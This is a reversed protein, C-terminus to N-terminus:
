LFTKNKGATKVTRGLFRRFFAYMQLIYENQFRKPCGSIRRGRAYGDLLV